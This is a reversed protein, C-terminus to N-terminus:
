FARARCPAYWRWCRLQRINRRCNRRRARFELLARSKRRRLFDDFGEVTALSNELDDLAYIDGFLDGGGTGRLVLRFGTEPDVPELLETNALNIPLEFEVLSMYLNQESTDLALAYANTEGLGAENILALLGINQDLSDDWDVVDVSLQFEQTQTIDPRLSGLRSAGIEEPLPSAIKELRYAGDPFTFKGAPAAEAEHLPDLREWGEDNGEDFDFVQCYGSSCLALSLFSTKLFFSSPM